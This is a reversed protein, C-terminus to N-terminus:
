TDIRKNGGNEPPTPDIMSYVAVIDETILYLALPMLTIVLLTIAIYILTYINM